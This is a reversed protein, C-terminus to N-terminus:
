ILEPYLRFVAEFARKEVEYSSEITRDLADYGGNELTNKILRDLSKRTLNEFDTTPSLKLCQVIDHLSLRFEVKIDARLVGDISKSFKM